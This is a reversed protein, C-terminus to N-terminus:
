PKLDVVVREGSTYSVAQKGDATFTGAGKLEVSGCGSIFVGRLESAGRIVLAYTGPQEHWIRVPRRVIWEVGRSTTRLKVCRHLNMSRDHCAVGNLARPGSIRAGKGVYDISFQAHPDARFTMAGTGRPLEFSKATAAPAAVLILLLGILLHRVSANHTAGATL